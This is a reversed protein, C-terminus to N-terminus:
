FHNTFSSLPPQFPFNNTIPMIPNVYYKYVVAQNGVESSSGLAELVPIMSNVLAANISEAEECVALVYIHFCYPTPLVSFTQM